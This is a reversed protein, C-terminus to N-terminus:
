LYDKANKHNCKEFPLILYAHMMRNKEDPIKMYDGYMSKLYEDTDNPGYFSEGEFVIRKLPFITAYSFTFFGSTIDIGTSVLNSKNGKHKKLYHKKLNDFGATKVVITALHNLIWSFNKIKKQPSLHLKRNIFFKTNSYDDDIIDYPFIDVFIGQHYKINRNQETKQVFTSYNDRIKAWKWISKDTKRTQLFLDDPLEESCVAMFKEYEPRTMCIDLDDDWPIFGKHRVAGLLTGADLWYKISHKQCILDISKLIELMVLQAQILPNDAKERVRKDYM